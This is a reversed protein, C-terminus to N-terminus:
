LDANRRCKTAVDGGARRKARPPLFRESAAPQGAAGSGPELSMEM